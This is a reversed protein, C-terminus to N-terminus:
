EGKAAVSQAGRYKAIKHKLWDCLYASSIEGARYEEHALEVTGIFSVAADRENTVTALERMLGLIVDSVSKAINGGAIFAKRGLDCEVRLNENQARLADRECSVARLLYGSKNINTCQCESCLYGSDGTSALEKHCLYCTNM